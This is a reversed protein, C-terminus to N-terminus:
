IPKQCDPFIACIYLARLVRDCHPLHYYASHLLISLKLSSVNSPQGAKTRAPDHLHAGTMMEDHRPATTEAHAPDGTEAAVIMAATTVVITADTATTVRPDAVGRTKPPVDQRDATMTTVVVITMGVTPRPNAGAVVAETVGLLVIALAQAADQLVGEEERPVGEVELLAEAVEHLVGEVELHVGEEEQLVEDQLVLDEQRLDVDAPVAEDQHPVADVLVVEGPLPDVDVLVVEGQRLVVGGPAEMKGAVIMGGLDTTM